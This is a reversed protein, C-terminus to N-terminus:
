VNRDEPYELYLARMMPLGAKTFKEAEEYIYPMHSYLLKDYYRFIELAEESFNRPDRDAADFKAKSTVVFAMESLKTFYIEPIQELAEVALDTEGM